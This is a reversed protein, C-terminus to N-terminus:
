QTKGEDVMDVVSIKAVEIMDQVIETISTCINWRGKLLSPHCNFIINYRENPAKFHSQLTIVPPAQPFFPEAEPFQINAIVFQDKVKATLMASYFNDGIDVLCIEALQRYVSYISNKTPVNLQDLLKGEFKLGNRTSVDHDIDAANDCDEDDDGEWQYEDDDMYQEEECDQQDYEEENDSM